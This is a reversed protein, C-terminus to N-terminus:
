SLSAQSFFSKLNSDHQIKTHLVVNDNNKKACVADDTRIGTYVYVICAIGVFHTFNGDTCCTHMCKGFLIFYHGAKKNSRGKKIVM